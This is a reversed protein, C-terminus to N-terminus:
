ARVVKISIHFLIHCLPVVGAVVRRGMRTMGFLVRLSKSEELVLRVTHWNEFEYPKPCFHVRYTERIPCCFHCCFANVAAEHFTAHFVFLVFRTEFVIRSGCSMKFCNTTM